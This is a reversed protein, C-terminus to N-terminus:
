DSRLAFGLARGISAPLVSLHDEGEFEHFHIQSARAGNVERLQKALDRANDVMRWDLLMKKVVVKAILSRFVAPVWPLKAAIAGTMQPPLQSPVDQEKGGVLILARPAAMGDRLKRAFAPAEGLMSHKNWWVAPSSAVFNRFAEPHNFMVNLTFLGAISHGYLTQDNADVHYAAAIAPRLEQVLFGYFQESGGYDELNPPPQGPRQPLGSAPTPPTLDRSRLSFLQTPEDTPYGVCVVLAARGILAFTASVTAMIPFVMNGDTGVIVPYGSPPASSDPKFVFIRYTRGTIRSPMDFQVSGYLAAPSPATLDPLSMVMM